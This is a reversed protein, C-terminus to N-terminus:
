NKNGEVCNVCKTWNGEVKVCETNKTSCYDCEGTFVDKESSIYMEINM